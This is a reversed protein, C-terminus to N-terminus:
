GLAQDLPTTLAQNLQRTSELTEEQLRRLEALREASRQAPTPRADVAANTAARISDGLEAMSARMVRPDLQIERVTGDANLEVAVLGDESHGTSPEGGGGRNGIVAIARTMIDDLAAVPDREM